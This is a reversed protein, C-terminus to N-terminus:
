IYILGYKVKPELNPPRHGGFTMADPRHASKTTTNPLSPRNM